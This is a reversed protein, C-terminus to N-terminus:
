DPYDESPWEGRPQRRARHIRRHLGDYYWRSVVNAGSVTVLRNWADYVCTFSTTPSEPRPITTTNGARTASFCIVGRGQGRGPFVCQDKKL